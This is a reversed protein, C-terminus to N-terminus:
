CSKALNVELNLPKFDQRQLLVRNSSLRSQHIEAALREKVSADKELTRSLNPDASLRSRPAACRLLTPLTHPRGRSRTHSSYGSPSGALTACGSCRILDSIAIILLCFCLIGSLLAGCLDSPRILRGGRQDPSSIPSPHLHHLSSVTEM